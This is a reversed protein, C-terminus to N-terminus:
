SGALPAESTRTSRVLAVRRGVERMGFREYLAIAPANRGDVACTLEDAGAKRAAEIGLWMLHRALGRKRASPAVGLYVLEVSTRGKVRAFLGCGVPEGAEFALFWTSPDFEGALRHSELVDVTNRMGCLEPCDLTQEYTQDLTRILVDHDREWGDAGADVSRIEFGDNVNPPPAEEASLPMRLYLLEGLRTFGAGECAEMAWWDEPYPLAQVLHIEEPTQRAVADCGARICGALEEIQGHVTGLAGSEDPSSLFVMATRGSGPVILCAHRVRVRGQGAVDYTGWMLDLPIGLKTFAEVTRRDGARERPPVGALRAAGDVRHTGELREPGRVAPNSIGIESVVGWAALLSGISARGDYM